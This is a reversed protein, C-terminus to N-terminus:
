VHLQAQQHNATTPIILAVPLAEGELILHHRGAM